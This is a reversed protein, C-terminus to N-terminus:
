ADKKDEAEEKEDKKGATAEASAPVEEKKEEEEKKDDEEKKAAAAEGEKTDETAEIKDEVVEEKKEAETDIAIQFEDATTFREGLRAAKGQRGRLFFLKARRIKAVKKVEIKEVKPSHLSFVKEVGVGSVLRRVTFTSDTPTHGKHVNIVLGEFVQIRAKGKQDVIKQHVRVTDGPKIGLNKRDEMNVPSIAVGTITTSM